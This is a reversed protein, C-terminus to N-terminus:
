LKTALGGGAGACVLEDYVKTGTAQEYKSKYELKRRGVAGDITM